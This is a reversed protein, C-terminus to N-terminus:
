LLQTIFSRVYLQSWLSIVLVSCVGPLGSKLWECKCMCVETASFAAEMTVNTRGRTKSSSYEFSVKDEDSSARVM